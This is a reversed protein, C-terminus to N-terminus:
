AHCNSTQLEIQMAPSGWLQQRGCAQTPGKLSCLVPRLAAALRELQIGRGSHIALAAM